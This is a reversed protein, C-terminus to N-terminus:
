NNCSFVLLSPSQRPRQLVLSLDGSTLLDKDMETDGHYRYGLVQKPSHIEGNKFTIVETQKSDPRTWEVRIDEDLPAPIKFPLSVSPDGDTVSGSCVSSVGSKRKPTLLNKIKKVK